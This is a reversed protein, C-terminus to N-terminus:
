SPAGIRPDLAGYLLDVAFNALVVALAAFLTVGVIIQLDLANVADLLLGGVGQIAFVKETIVTGGLLSGFDLAVLTAIPVVLNRLGHRTVVASEKLGISRATRIFDMGMVEILSGRTLRTYIAGNIIALVTWPMILHFAWGGPSESLPVYGGIPLVNLTFGFLLIFLLGVLYAPASVGLVSAGMLLRDAARGRRLAAIVGAGVGVVTWLLLAGLAISLTVPLREALLSTVDTHLRFSYGFCPAACHIATAGDGFTRGAVIGWLFAGLQAFWPRDLGMYSQVEVLRDPTCPKGCSLQAPNNPLLYFIAFSAAAIVLLVALAGGLRGAAFRLYGLARSM